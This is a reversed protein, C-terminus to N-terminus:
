TKQKLLNREQQFSSYSVRKEPRRPTPSLSKDLTVAKAEGIITRSTFTNGFFGILFVPFDLYSGGELGLKLAKVKQTLAQLSKGM